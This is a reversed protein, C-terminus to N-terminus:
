SPSTASLRVHVMRRANTSLEGHRCSGMCKVWGACAAHPWATDGDELHNTPPVSRTSRLCNAEGRFCAFPMRLVRPPNPPSADVQTADVTSTAAWLCFLLDRPPAADQAMWSWTAALAARAYHGDPMYTYARMPSNSCLCAPAPAIAVKTKQTERKIYNPM